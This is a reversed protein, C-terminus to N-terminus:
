SNKTVYPKLHDLICQIAAPQSSRDKPNIWLSGDWPDNEIEFTIGDFVFESSCAGWNWIRKPRKAFTVGPMLTLYQCLYRLEIGFIHCGSAGESQIRPPETFLRKLSTLM